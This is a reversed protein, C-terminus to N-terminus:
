AGTHKKANIKFGSPVEVLRLIAPPPPGHHTAVLEQAAARTVRVDFLLVFSM